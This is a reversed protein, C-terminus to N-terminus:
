NEEGDVNKIPVFKPGVSCPWVKVGPNGLEDITSDAWCYEHGERDDNYITPVYWFVIDSNEIVEGDVFQEVGDENLKCCSGLTLMDEDGENEKFKTVFIHEKDGRSNDYQGRNPEVYFGKKEDDISTFRYLYKGKYMKEKGTSRYDGEIQWKQWMGDKYLAFEEHPELDIDLRMVPRYIAHSSCGRGLNVAVVRFSGDKYFLFKNQYRYNCAMPWKPNRFDQVIYFGVTKNNEVLPKIEPGNFALVVSTSFMPCGMADNYGFTYENNEGKVFEVQRGEVITPTSTDLKDAGYGKYAVHWDVIKLSKAVKQGKFYLDRIELGDSGTLHYNFKWGDQSYNNDKECYNKMIYRNELTREDICAPTYTKGLPAWKAIALRLKTLDVVAWLARQNKQDPLTPAVCLHNKNECPSEQLNSRVNSMTLDNLTPKRGWKQQVAPNNLAISKAINTLRVNIDPQTNPYYKVALVRKTDVNVIARTTSNKAFNYKEVVYCVSENNSNKCEQKEKQSLMSPLAKDVKTIDNHLLKGNEKTDKKFKENKLALRQAILQHPNLEDEDIPLISKGQKYLNKLDEIYEMVAPTEEYNKDLQPLIIEEDNISYEKKTQPQNIPTKYNKKYFYLGGIVISGAVFVGISLAIEKKM